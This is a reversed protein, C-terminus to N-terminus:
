FKQTKPVLFNDYGWFVGGGGSAVHSRHTSTEQVWRPPPTRSDTQDFIKVSASAFHEGSAFVALQDLWRHGPLLLDNYSDFLRADLPSITVSIHANPFPIGIYGTSLFILSKM